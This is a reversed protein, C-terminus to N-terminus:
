RFQKALLISVIVFQKVSLHLDLHLLIFRFLVGEGDLDVVRVADSELSDLAVFLHEFLLILSDNGFVAINRVDLHSLMFFEEEYTGM